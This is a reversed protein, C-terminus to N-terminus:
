RPGIRLSATALFVERLFWLLGMVLLIMAIIFLLSV